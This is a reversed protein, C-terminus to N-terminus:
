PLPPSDRMLVRLWDPTYRGMVRYVADKNDQVTGLQGHTDACNLLRLFLRKVRERSGHAPRSSPVEYNAPLGAFWDAM